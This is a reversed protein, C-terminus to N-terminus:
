MRDCAPGAADQAATLTQEVSASQPSLVRSHKRCWHTGSPVREAAASQAGPCTQLPPMQPGQEAAASQAGPCTHLLPAQPGQEAAASQAGPCIQAAPAQPGQV